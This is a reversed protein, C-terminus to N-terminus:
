AQNQVISAQQHNYNNAVPRAHGYSPAYAVPRPAYAVPHVPAYAVPHVPAYAVPHAYVPAAEHHYGGYAVPYAARGHGYGYNNFVADRKHFAGWGGFGGFGGHGADSFVDGIHNGEGNTTSGTNGAVRTQSPNIFNNDNTATNGISKSFSNGALNEFINGGDSGSNFLSNQAQWGNNVNPNSVAAPGSSVAPGEESGIQQAIVTTAAVLVAAFFKM